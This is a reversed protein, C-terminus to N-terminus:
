VNEYTYLRYNKVVQILLLIKCSKTCPAFCSLQTHTLLPLLCTFFIRFPILPKYLYVMRLKKLKKRTLLSARKKKKQPRSFTTMVDGSPSVQVRVRERQRSPFRKMARMSKQQHTQAIREHHKAQKKRQKTTAKAQRCKCARSGLVMVQFSAFVRRCHKKLSTKSEKKNKDSHRSCHPSADPEGFSGDPHGIIGFCSNEM